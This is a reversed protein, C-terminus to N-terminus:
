TVKNIPEIKNKIKDIILRIINYIFAIMLTLIFAVIFFIYPNERMYSSKNLLMMPIRQYIYIPFLNKGMWELGKNKINIKRSAVVIVLAFLVSHIHYWIMNARLKYAIIYFVSLYVFTILERNKIWLEIKNKYMSYAIGAVFCFATNYYYSDKYFKMISTYLLTGIFVSIIRKKNDKFSTFSLYAIFYLILICLIYWNSNGFSRWGILALLMKKISLSKAIFINYVIIYIIVAIDFNILTALIRKKPINDIYKKGKNKTSEMIGYGSYFLFMTVILQSLKKNFDIGIKDVWENSFQLKYQLFHRIFVFVIFFGKVINTYRKALYEENYKVPKATILIILFLILIIITM